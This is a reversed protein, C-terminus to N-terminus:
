VNGSFKNKMSYILEEHLQALSDEVEKKWFGYEELVLFHEKSGSLVVLYFLVCREELTIQSRLAHFAFKRNDGVANQDVYDIIVSIQEYYHAFGQWFDKKWAVFVNTARQFILHPSSDMRQFKKNLDWWAYSIAAHSEFAIGAASVPRLDYIKLSSISSHLLSLMQFVRNDFEQEEHRLEAKESDVRQARLTLLLGVFACFSLIPNLLGGVYDGFQGWVEQKQSFGLPFKALYFGFVVLVMSVAALLAGIYTLDNRRLSM